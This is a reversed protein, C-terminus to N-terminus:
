GTEGSLLRHQSKLRGLEKRLETLGSVRIAGIEDLVDRYTIASRGGVIIRVRNNTLQRLRRLERSLNPDDPPYVISLAIARAERSQATDAIDEAPLNPGLYLTRWGGAAATVSGM